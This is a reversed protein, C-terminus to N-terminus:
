WMERGDYRHLVPAFDMNHLLKSYYNQWSEISVWQVRLKCVVNWGHCPIIHCGIQSVADSYQFMIAGDQM